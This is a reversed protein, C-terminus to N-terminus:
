NVAELINGYLLTNGAPLANPPTSHRLDDPRNFNVSLRAGDPEPQCSLFCQSVPDAGINLDLQADAACIAKESGIVLCPDTTGHQLQLGLLTQNQGPKLFATSPRM